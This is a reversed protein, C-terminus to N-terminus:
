VVAIFRPHACVHIATIFDDKQLLTQLGLMGTSNLYAAMLPHTICEFIGQTVRQKMPLSLAIHLALDLSPQSPDGRFIDRTLVSLSNKFFKMIVPVVQAQPICTAHNFLRSCM